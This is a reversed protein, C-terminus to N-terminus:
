GKKVSDNFGFDQLEQFKFLEIIRNPKKIFGTLEIKISDNFRIFSPIYKYSPDYNVQPREKLKYVGVKFPCGLKFDISNVLIDTWM